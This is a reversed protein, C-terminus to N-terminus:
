IVQQNKQKHFCVLCLNDSASGKMYHYNRNCNSCYHLPKLIITNLKKAEYDMWNEKIACIFFGTPNHMKFNNKEIWSSYLLIDTIDFLDFIKNHNSIGLKFLIQKAEEQKEKIFPDDDSSPKLTLQSKPINNSNDTSQQKDTILLTHNDASPKVALPFDAEPAASNKNYIYKFPKEFITYNYYTFQGNNNRLQSKNLYGSFILEKIASKVSSIGDTSCSILDPFSVFWNDPKSLLYALLGKSKLSINKDTITSNHMMFYPNKKGKSFRIISMAPVETNLFTLLNGGPPILFTSKPFLFPQVVTFVIAYIFIFM